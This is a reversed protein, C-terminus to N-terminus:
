HLRKSASEIECGAVPGVDSIALLAIKKVTSSPSYVGRTVAPPQQKSDLQSSKRLLYIRQAIGCHLLELISRTITQWHWQEFDPVASCNHLARRCRGAAHRAEEAPRGPAPARGSV